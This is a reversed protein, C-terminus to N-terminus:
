QGLAVEHVIMQTSAIVGVGNTLNTFDPADLRITSLDKPGNLIYYYDYLADDIQTMTYVAATIRTSGPPNNATIGTLTSAYLAHPFWTIATAFGNGSVVQPVRAFAPYQYTMKGSADVSSAVPVEARETTTIGNLTLEYEVFLELVYAGNSTGFFGAV